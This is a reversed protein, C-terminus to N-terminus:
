KCKSKRCKLDGKYFIENIPRNQKIRRCFTTQPINAIRAWESLTKTEGYFTAYVNRRTNKSQEGRSLWRCNSPEYNGNVDIRDITLDEKYGNAIAWDYFATFSDLWEKCITIGRGGYDKYAMDNSNCCRQKMTCYIQYLRTNSLNHKTRTEISLCGCSRTHERKLSSSLVTIFNGCDCKCLWM